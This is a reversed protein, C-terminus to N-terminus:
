PRCEVHPKTDLGTLELSNTRKDSQPHTSSLLAHPCHLSFFEDFNPLPGMHSLFINVIIAIQITFLLTQDSKRAQHFDTAYVSAEEM